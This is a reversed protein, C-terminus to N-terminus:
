GTDIEWERLYELFSNWWGNLPSLELAERGQVLSFLYHSILCHSRTTPKVLPFMRELDAWHLSREIKQTNLDSRQVLHICGLKNLKVM